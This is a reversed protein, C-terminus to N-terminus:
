LDKNPQHKKPLKNLRLRNKNRTKQMADKCKKTFLQGPNKYHCSRFINGSKSGYYVEKTFKIKGGFRGANAYTPLIFLLILIISIIKKM